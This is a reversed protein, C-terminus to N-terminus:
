AEFLEKQKISFQTEENCWIAESQKRASGRQTIMPMFEMWQARTTECVIVQGEREKCWGALHSFSIKRNSMVYAHGSFQYPPDIFWTAKENEINEFSALRIEWHRIKFLNKAIRQLSYNTFNPRQVTVWETPKIAPREIAKKILFGMLMKAEECDFTFDNLTQGPMLRRPLGLIDKESCQQLWKWIKVIVEYKDVLLINRDFYKLSYRASGAFPEIIKDHKPKPYWDVINAKSGYYSWM